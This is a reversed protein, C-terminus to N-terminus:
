YLGFLLLVSDPDRGPQLTRRYMPCDVAAPLISQDGKAAAAIRHRRDVRAFTDPQQDRAARAQQDQISLSRDDGLVREALPMARRHEDLLMVGRQPPRGAARRHHEGLLEQRAKWAPARKQLAQDGLVFEIRGIV